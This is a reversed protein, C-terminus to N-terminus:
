TLEQCLEGERRRRTARLSGSTGYFTGSSSSWWGRIHRVSNVSRGLWKVEPHKYDMAQCPNFCRSLLAVNRYTTSQFHQERYTWRNRLIKNKSSNEQFNYSQTYELHFHTLCRNADM